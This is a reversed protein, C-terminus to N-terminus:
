SLVAQFAEIYIPIIIFLSRMMYFPETQFSYKQDLDSTLPLSQNVPFSVQLQTFPFFKLIQYKTLM